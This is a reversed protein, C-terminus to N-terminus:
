TIRVAGDWPYDTAQVVEVDTGAVQGVNVRAGAFLNVYLADASKSYMWTPLM